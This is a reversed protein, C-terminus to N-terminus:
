IFIYIFVFILKYICSQSYPRLTHPLLCLYAYFGASPMQEDSCTFLVLIPAACGHLVQFHPPILTSISDITALSTSLM